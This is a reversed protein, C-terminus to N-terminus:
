LVRTWGKWSGRWSQGSWSLSSLGRYAPCVPSKLHRRHTANSWVRWVLDPPDFLGPHTRIFYTLNRGRYIRGSPSRLHFMKANVNLPTRATLTATQPRDRLKAAAKERAEPGAAIKQGKLMAPLNRWDKDAFLCARSCYRAERRAVMKGCIKCAPRSLRM